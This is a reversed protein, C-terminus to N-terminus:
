LPNEEPFLAHWLLKLVDENSIKGDGTFDANTTIPNQEPFLTHWLLALVDENTVTNDGTLDGTVTEPETSEEEKMFTIHANILPDNDSGISISNWQKQSGEYCVERLRTRSFASDGISLVSEPITASKLSRCEYFAAKGISTVSNPIVIAPLRSCATFAHNGFSTVTDPLTISTMYACEYFASNGISTVGYGVVVSKVSLGSSYWPACGTEWDTMEGTGSITLTGANDLTWTLNKGCVGSEVVTNDPVSPETPEEEVSFIINANTLSRNDGGIAISNWQSQSGDYYVEVLGACEHFASEGIATVSSPIMISQMGFCDYFAGNGISTVSGPIAFSVLGSCSSFAYNGISTVTDPITVSTLNACYNFAYDAINTIEYGIIVSQISSRSSYWPAGEVDWTWMEGTGSITLTGADDLTWALNEGCTGSKIETDEPVSPETPEEERMFIINANTLSRNDVGIAISNWQSQSGDYYVEVLSECGYFASEGILSVSNPIIIFTLGSCGSFAGTGISTVSAPIAFSTLGTCDRFIYDGITTISDPLTVSQLGTCGWFAWNDLTTVSEPIVISQLGTCYEFAWQGITTVGEPIDISSLGSCTSFASEGITTVSGSISVAKLNECKYFAKDGIATVSDPVTVSQLSTCGEFANNSIITIEEPIILETLLEGELYLNHACHLPNSEFMGFSIECWAQLDEIYVATLSECLFFAGSGVTTVSSPIAISPLSSCAFADNGITTVTAPISVSQLVACHEFADNGITTVGNQIVIREIVHRLRYWPVDSVGWNYMPGTGSITLTGNEYSYTVKEGCSGTLPAAEAKPSFLTIAIVLALALLCLPIVKKFRKM